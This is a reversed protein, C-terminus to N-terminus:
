PLLTPLVPNGAVSVITSEDDLITFHGNTSVMAIAYVVVIALALLKSRLSM